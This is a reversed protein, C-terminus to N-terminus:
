KRAQSWGRELCGECQLSVVSSRGHGDGFGTSRPHGAEKGKHLVPQVSPASLQKAFKLV